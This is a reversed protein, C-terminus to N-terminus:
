RVYVHRMYMSNVGARMRRVIERGEALSRRLVSPMM